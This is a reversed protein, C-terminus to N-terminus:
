GETVILLGQFPRQQPAGPNTVFFSKPGPEVDKDVRLSLYYTFMDGSGEAVSSNMATTRARHVRMHIGPDTPEITAGDLGGVVVLALNRLRTGPKVMLPIQAVPSNPNFAEYADWAAADMLFQPWPNFATDKDAVAPQRKQKPVGSGQVIGDAALAIHIVELMQSGYNINSGNLLIDSVTYGTSAPVEFTAHLGLDFGYECGAEASAEAATLGRNLTWFEKADTGDPTQFNSFDPMQMYLSPPNTLTGKVNFLRVLQNVSFGINPDSNRFISGYQADCIMSQEDWDPDSLDRQLTAAAALYIEAFVANPPSTLHIAGGSSETSVTGSNWKNLPNYFPRRTLPDIPVKGNPDKLVLDEIPIKPKRGPFILENYIECVRRPDMNWLTFWYEPNECTFMIRTIKGDSNRKVSIECYEDLWGRPGGPGFPQWQSIPQRWNLFGCVDTPINPFGGAFAHVDALYGQDVLAYLQDQSLGYPSRESDAFYRLVRNPFSTWIIPVSGAFTGPPIEALPNYYWDRDHDHEVTWPNGEISMQNYANLTRTWVEVMARHKEPSDPFDNQFAPLDYHSLVHPSCGATKARAAKPLMSQAGAAVAAGGALRLLSRRSLPRAFSPNQRPKM